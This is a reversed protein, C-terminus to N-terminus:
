AAVSVSEAVSVCSSVCDRESDNPVLDRERVSVADLVTGTTTCDKRTDTESTPNRVELKKSSASAAPKGGSDVRRWDRAATQAIPLALGSMWAIWISRIRTGKVNLKPRVVGGPLM